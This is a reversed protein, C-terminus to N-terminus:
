SNIERNFAAISPGVALNILDLRRQVEAHREPHYRQLYKAAGDQWWGSCTLCDPASDLMEYFRPIPANQETLYVMVQEGSWDEIPFLYEIGHEVHGSSIPAKVRDSARQGRIVLTIGDQIMREHLPIIKARLCCSYSDQILPGSYGESALGLPTSAAPMLDSPIGFAAIVEPQRGAIEVFHPVMARVQDALEITEPYADGTNCWYVTLRDWFPKLLYLCALADRGGSFQLAIQQHRAIVSAIATMM